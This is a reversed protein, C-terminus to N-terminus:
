TPATPSYWSVSLFLFRYLPHLPSHFPISLLSDYRIPWPDTLSPSFIAISTQTPTHETTPTRHTIDLVPYRRCFLSIYLAYLPSDNRPSVSALCRHFLEKIYRLPLSFVAPYMEVLTEKWLRGWNPSPVRPPFLHESTGNVVQM